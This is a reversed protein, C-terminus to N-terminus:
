VEEKLIEILCHLLACELQTLNEPQYAQSWYKLSNEAYSIANNASIDIIKKPNHKKNFGEVARHILLPFAIRNLIFDSKNEDPTFNMEYMFINGKETYEFGEALDVMKKIIDPVCMAKIEQETYTKM